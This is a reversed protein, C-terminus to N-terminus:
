TLIPARRIPKLVYKRSFLEISKSQAGYNISFTGRFPVAHMNDEFLLSVDWLPVLNSNDIISVQKGPCISTITKRYKAVLLPRDLLM